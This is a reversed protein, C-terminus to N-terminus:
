TRPKGYCHLTPLPYCCPSCVYFMMFGIDAALFQGLWWSAVIWRVARSTTSWCTWLGLATISSLWQFDNFMSINSSIPKCCITSAEWPWMISTDCVRTIAWLISIYISLHRYIYIYIYIYVCTDIRMSYWLIMDTGWVELNEVTRDAGPPVKGPKGVCDECGSVTLGFSGERSQRSTAQCWNTGPDESFDM